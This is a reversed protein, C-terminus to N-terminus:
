SRLKSTFLALWLSLAFSAVVGALFLLAASESRAPDSEFFWVSGWFAATAVMLALINGLILWLGVRQFPRSRGSKALRAERLAQEAKRLGWADSSARSQFLVVPPSKDFIRKRNMRSFLTM